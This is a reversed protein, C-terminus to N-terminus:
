SKSTTPRINGFAQVPEIDSPHRDAEITNAYIIKDWIWDQREKDPMGEINKHVIMFEPLSAVDFSESWPQLLTRIIEPDTNAKVAYYAQVSPLNERFEKYNQRIKEHDSLSYPHGM